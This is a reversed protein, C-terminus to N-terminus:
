DHNWVRSVTIKNPNSETDITFMLRFQDNLRISREDGEMKEYHLSKWNRISREDPSNRLFRLKNRLSAIVAIPLRTEPARDTEVLALTKDWFDIEM